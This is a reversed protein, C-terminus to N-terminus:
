GPTSVMPVPGQFNSLKLGAVPTSSDAFGRQHPPATGVLCIENLNKASSVLMARAIRDPSMSATGFMMPGVANWDAEPTRTCALGFQLVQFKLMGLLAGHFSM